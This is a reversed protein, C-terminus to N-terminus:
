QLVRRLFKLDAEELRYPNQIHPMEQIKQHFEALFRAKEEKELGQGFLMGQLQGQLLFKMLKQYSNYQWPKLSGVMLLVDSQQYLRMNEMKCIGLDMVVYEYHKLWLEKLQEERLGPYYDAKLYTFGVASGAVIVSETRMGEIQSEQTVEAYAAKYKEVSALFNLLSLAFHTVGTGHSAGLVGVLMTKKKYSQRRTKLVNLKEVLFM